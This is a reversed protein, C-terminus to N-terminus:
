LVEYAVVSGLSHGVVVRTDSTILEAARARVADRLEPEATDLQRGVGHVVVVRSM